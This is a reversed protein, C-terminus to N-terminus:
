QGQRRPVEPVTSPCWGSPAVKSLALHRRVARM